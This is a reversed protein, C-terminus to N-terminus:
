MCKLVQIMATTAYLLLLKSLSNSQLNDDTFPYKMLSENDRGVKGNRRVTVM